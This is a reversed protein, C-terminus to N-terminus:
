KAQAKLATWKAMLVQYREEQIRCTELEDSTPPMESAQMAMAAAVLRL